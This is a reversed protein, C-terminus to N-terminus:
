MSTVRFLSISSSKPFSFVFDATLLILGTDKISTYFARTLKYLKQDSDSANSLKRYESYLSKLGVGHHYKPIANMLFESFPNIEIAFEGDPEKLIQQKM